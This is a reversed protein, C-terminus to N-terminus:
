GVKLKVPKYNRHKPNTIRPAMFQVHIHRVTGGNIASDGFRMGFGGGAIKFKKEAWQLLSVLETGAIPTLDKLQEAHTRYIALLHVRTNEYPWQNKTLLWHKTKKLIPQKHYKSFHESCFPCIGAKDIKEMITRQEPLRENGM